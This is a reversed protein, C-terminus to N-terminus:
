LAHPSSRHFVRPIESLYFHIVDQATYRPGGEPKPVTLALAIIGGTSTGAVLDFLEVLPRGAVREIEALVVAPIVGRVGGGDLALVRLKRTM